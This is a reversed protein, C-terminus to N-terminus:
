NRSAGFREGQEVQPKLSGWKVQECNSNIVDRASTRITTRMMLRNLRQELAQMEVKGLANGLIIAKSTIGPTRYCIDEDSVIRTYFYVPDAGNRTLPSGPDM